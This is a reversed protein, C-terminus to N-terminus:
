RSGGWTRRPSTVCLCFWLPSLNTPIQFPSRLRQGPYTSHHGDPPFSCLSPLERYNSESKNPAPKSSSAYGFHWGAWRGLLDGSCVAAREDERTRQNTMRQHARPFLYLPLRYTSNTSVRQDMIIPLLMNNKGATVAIAPITKVKLVLMQDTHTDDPFIHYIQWRLLTLVM